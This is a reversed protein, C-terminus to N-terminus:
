RIRMLRLTLAKGAGSVRLFYLGAPLGEGLEVRIRPSELRVVRHWLRRGQPDYLALALPEAFPEPFTLMLESGAWFAQIRRGAAVQSEEVAEGPMLNVWTQGGDETYLVQNSDGVVYGHLPDLFDVDFLTAQTGSFQLEWTQGGDPTHLITGYKGVAWGERPNLFDVGRLYAGFSPTVDEWTQGGDTSRLVLPSYDDDKGGVVFITDPHPAAVDFFDHITDRMVTDWLTFTGLSKLIYGQGGPFVQPPAGSVMWATGLDAFDAGYYDAFPLDYYLEWTQGGDETYRIIGDGGTIIGTIGSGHFRIRTFYKTDGFFALEWTAGGDTTHLVVGVGGCIWGEQLDKFYVDFLTQNVPSQQRIWKGGNDPSYFIAGQFDVVWLAGNSFPAIGHFIRVTDQAALLGAALLLAFPYRM